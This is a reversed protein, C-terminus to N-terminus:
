CGSPPGGSRGCCVWVRLLPVMQHVERGAGPGASLELEPLLSGCHASGNSVHGPLCVPWISPVAPPRWSTVSAASVNRMVNVHGGVNGEMELNDIMIRKRKEGRAETAVPIADFVYGLPPADGTTLEAPLQSRAVALLEKLEAEDAVDIDEQAWAVSVDSNDTGGREVAALYGAGYLANHCSQWCDNFSATWLNDCPMLMFMSLSVPLTPEDQMESLSGATQLPPAAHQAPAAQHPEGMGNVDTVLRETRQQAPSPSSAGGPPRASPQQSQPSPPAPSSGPTGGHPTGGARAQLKEMALKDKRRRGSFWVQLAEQIVSRANLPLARSSVKVALICSHLRDVNLLISVISISLDNCAHWIAHLLCRSKTRLSILGTELRRELKMQHFPTSQLHLFLSM